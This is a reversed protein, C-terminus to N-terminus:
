SNCFPTSIHRRYSEIKKFLTSVSCEFQVIFYVRADSCSIVSREWKMNFYVLCLVTDGKSMVMWKIVDRRRPLAECTTAATLLPCPTRWEEARRFLSAKRGGCHEGAPYRQRQEARQGHTVALHWIDAKKLNDSDKSQGPKFTDMLRWRVTPPSKGADWRLGRHCKPKGASLITVSSFCCLETQHQTWVWQRLLRGEHHLKNPM